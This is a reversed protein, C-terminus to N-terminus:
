TLALPPLALSHARNAKTNEAHRWVGGLIDGYRLSAAEDRRQATVLLFRVMRGFAQSVPGPGGDCAKWIAALEARSLVRDRKREPAKRLDGVFNPPILDEQAAWRMVPGLYSLLRNAQMLAGREVIADRALRLDGKSFEAAPLGLWPKLGTRLTRM